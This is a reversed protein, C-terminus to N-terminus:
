HQRCTILYGFPIHNWSGRFPILQVAQNKHSEIHFIYRKVEQEKNKTQSSFSKSFLKSRRLWHTPLWISGSINIILEFYKQLTKQTEHDRETPYVSHGVKVATSRWLIKYLVQVLPFPVGVTVLGLVIKTYRFLIVTITLLHGGSYILITGWFTSMIYWGNHM